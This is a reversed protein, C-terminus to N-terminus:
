RQRRLLIHLGAVSGVGVFLGWDVPFNEMLLRISFWAIAAFAITTAILAQRIPRVPNNGMSTLAIVGALVAAVLATVTGTYGALIIDFDIGRVDDWRVSRGGGELGWLGASVGGGSFWVRAVATIGLGIACVLM